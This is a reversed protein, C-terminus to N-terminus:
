NENKLRSGKEDFLPQPRPAQGDQLSQTFVKEVHQWKGDQWKFGEYDGDPILTFKKQPENSESVLHDFIIMDMDADYAMRAKADKEYELLYGNYALSYLYNYM